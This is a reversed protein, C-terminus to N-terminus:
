VDSAEGIKLEVPQDRVVVEGKLVTETPLPVTLLLKFMRRPAPGGINSDYNELATDSDGAAEWDGSEDVVIWIELEKTAM